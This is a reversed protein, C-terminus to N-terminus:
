STWQLRARLPVPSPLPSTLLLRSAPTSRRSSKRPSTLVPALSAPRATWVPLKWLAPLVPQAKTTPLPSSGSPSRPILLSPLLPWTTATRPPATTTPMMSPTLTSSPFALWCLMLESGSMDAWDADTGCTRLKELYREEPPLDRPWPTLPRCRAQVLEEWVEDSLMLDLQRRAEARAAAEREQARREEDLRALEGGFSKLGETCDALLGLVEEMRELARAAADANGPPCLAAAELVAGDVLTFVPEDARGRNFRGLLEGVAAGGETLTLPERYLIRVADSRVALRAPCPRGIDATLGEAGVACVRGRQELARKLNEM